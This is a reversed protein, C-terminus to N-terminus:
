PPARESIRGGHRLIRHAGDVDGARGLLDGVAQM